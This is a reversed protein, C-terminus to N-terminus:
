MKVARIAHNGTDAIYLVGGALEIGYPRKLHAETALGGDGDYGSEGCVGAVTSITQDTAIARVCHNYVDTLYLTGDPGLALDVPNDLSASLALGGDGGTGAQMPQGAVRRVVGATDIKRIIHNGTDAFYLNGAPDFVIRGAPDASQGFPQGMRLDMAAGEDGGYGPTCPAACTGMAGCTLKGSGM